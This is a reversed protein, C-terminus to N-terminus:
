SALWKGSHKLLNVAMEERHNQIRQHCFDSLSKNLLILEGVKAELVWSGPVDMGLVQCDISACAM